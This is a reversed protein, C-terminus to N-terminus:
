GSYIKIKNKSKTNFLNQSCKKFMLFDYGFLKERYGALTTDNKAKWGLICFLNQTVPHVFKEPWIEKRSLKKTM